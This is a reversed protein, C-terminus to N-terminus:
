AGGESDDPPVLWECSTAPSSDKRDRHNQLPAQAFHPSCRHSGQHHPDRPSRGARRSRARMHGRRTRARFTEEPSPQADPQSCDRLLDAIPGEQYRRYTPELEQLIGLPDVLAMLLKTDSLVGVGGPYKKALITAMDNRAGPDLLWLKTQPRSLAHLQYM